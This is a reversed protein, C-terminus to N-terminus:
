GQNNSSGGHELALSLRENSMVWLLSISDRCDGNVLKEKDCLFSCCSKSRGQTCLNGLREPLRSGHPSKHNGLTVLHFKLPKILKWKSNQKNKGKTQNHFESCLRNCTLSFPHPLFSPLLRLCCWFLWGREKTEKSMLGGLNLQIFKHKFAFCCVAAEQARNAHACCIWHQEKLAVM